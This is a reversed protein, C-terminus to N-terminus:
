KRANSVIYLILAAMGVYMSWQKLTENQLAIGACMGAVTIHGWASLLGSKRAQWLGMLAASLALLGTFALHFTSQDM